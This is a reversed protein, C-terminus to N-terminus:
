KNLVHGSEYLTLLKREIMPDTLKAELILMEKSYFKYNSFTKGQKNYIYDEEELNQMEYSHFRGESNLVIM